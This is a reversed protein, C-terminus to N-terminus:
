FNECKCPHPRCPCGRPVLFFLVTSNFQHFTAICSWLFALFLSWTVHLHTAKDCWYVCVCMGDCVWQPRPGNATVHTSIDWSTDFVLQKDAKVTEPTSPADCWSRWQSSQQVFTLRSKDKPSKLSSCLLSHSYRFVPLFSFPQSSSAHSIPKHVKKWGNIRSKAKRWRKRWGTIEEWKSQIILNHRIVQLVLWESHKNMLAHILKVQNEPM